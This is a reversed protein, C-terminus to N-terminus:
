TFLRITLVCKNIMKENLRRRPLAEYEGAQMNRSVLM